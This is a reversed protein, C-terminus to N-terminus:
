ADKCFGFSLIVSILTVLMGWITLYKFEAIFDKTACCLIIWNFIILALEIFRVVMRCTGSMKVLGTQKTYHCFKSHDESWFWNDFREYKGLKTHNSTLICTEVSVQDDNNEEGDQIM